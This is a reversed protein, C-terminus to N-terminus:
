HGRGSSGSGLSTSSDDISSTSSSSDLFASKAAEDAESSTSSDAMETGGMTEEVAASTDSLVASDSVEEQKPASSCGVASVILLGTLLLSLKAKMKIVGM